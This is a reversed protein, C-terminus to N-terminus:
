SRRSRAMTTAPPSGDRSGRGRHRAPPLQRGAADARGRVLRGTPDGRDAAGGRARLARRVLARRRRGAGGSEAALAEAVAAVDEFEREISYPRRTARAGRAAGTSPTSRQVVDRADARRCPVDHPRRDCRPGPRAAARRRSLVRRDAHRRAVRVVRSPAGATVSGTAVRLPHRAPGGPQRVGDGTAISSSGTTRTSRGRGRTRGPLLVPRPGGSTAGQGHAILRSGIGHGIRDPRSTAAPRGDDDSLAM